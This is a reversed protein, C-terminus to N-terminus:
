PTKVALALCSDTNCFMLNKRELDTLFASLQEKTVQSFQALLEKKTVPEQCALYITRSLGKLRHNLPRNEPREQRIILFSGGDRYGLAPVAPNKRKAHFAQWVAIKNRVVQWQAAQITRDGRYSKILMDMQELIDAPYLKTNTPHRTIAKIGYEQPNCCIPSGHGLFFTAATLPRFPLVKDLIRLTEQVEESTAGPFELILNGDLAIGAEFAFKMAAINDMVTTGKRMRGLLSDSLAEIGIQVSNLGGKRYQRYTSRKKLTRIEGFFRLDLGSRATEAFFIDSEKVPLANDCFTFDVCQYKNLLTRVEALMQEAKKFRYGHWQLNLNCFSCKNWWCGRSFELPLVPIFDLKTDQLHQFYDDYEALPLSSLDHIEETSTQKHRDKSVDQSLIAPCSLPGHEKLHVFLEKLPQEGEGTIVFDIEPFLKLLSRGLSPTCTSGGFVIPIEPWKKKIKQATYLSAPLQSFCVSFGILRCESFDQLLMWDRQQQKLLACLKSYSGGFKKQMSSHFVKEASKRMEPFLLGCYLAEAAWPSQAILRYRDFGIAAAVDLYPHLCRVSITDCEQQLYGKLSGLQVSPRNFIAWPMSILAVDTLPM